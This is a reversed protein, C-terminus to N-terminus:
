VVPDGAVSEIYYKADEPSSNLVLVLCHPDSYLKMYNRFIREIGLGRSCVLLGSDHHLNLFMEKEYDLLDDVESM